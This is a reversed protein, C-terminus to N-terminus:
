HWTATRVMGELRAPASAQHTYPEVHLDYILNLTSMAAWLHQINSEDRLTLHAVWEGTRHASFAFFNLTMALVGNAGLDIKVDGNESFLAAAQEGAEDAKVKYRLGGHGDDINIPQGENDLMRERKLLFYTDPRFRAIILYEM